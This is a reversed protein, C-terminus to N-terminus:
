RVGYYSVSVTADVTVRILRITSLAGTCVTVGQAGAAVLMGVAATPDTGDDRYRINATEVILIAMVAKQPVTLGGAAAGVTITQFGAVPALKSDNIGPCLSTQPQVVQAQVPAVLVGILLLSAVIRRM